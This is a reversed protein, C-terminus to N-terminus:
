RRRIRVNIPSSLHLTPLFSMMRRHLGLPVTSKRASRCLDQEMSRMEEFADGDSEKIMQRIQEPSAPVSSTGQRVYVGNPKLGKGKLYYPKNSGESVAIRVVRNDQISFRVFMTVDPVIADRIGNTIRTYEQDVDALGVANGNNDIGVFVVGGDTNAFAIVEKYIEETFQAKFEINETEFNM